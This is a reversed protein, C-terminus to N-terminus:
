RKNDRPSKDQGPSAIFNYASLIKQGNCAGASWNQEYLMEIIKTFSEENLGPGYMKLSQQHVPHIGNQNQFSLMRLYEYCAVHEIENNTNIFLTGSLVNIDNNTM